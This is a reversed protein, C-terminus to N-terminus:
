RHRELTEGSAKPEDAPIGAFQRHREVNRPNVFSDLDMARGRAVWVYGGPGGAGGDTYFQESTCFSFYPVCQARSHKCDLLGRVHTFVILTAGVCGLTTTHCANGSVLDILAAPEVHLSVPKAPDRWIRFLRLGIARILHRHRRQAAAAAQSGARADGAIAIGHGVVVDHVLRFGDLDRGIVALSIIGLHDAGIRASIKGEDLHIAAAIERVDLKRFRRRTNAVPNNCSRRGVRVGM